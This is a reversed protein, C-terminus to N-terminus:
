QPRITPFRNGEKNHTIEEILRNPDIDQLSSVAFDAEHLKDLPYTTAVGLVRMGAARASRIGALSDEIVLCEAPAIPDAAGQAANLRELTTRYIAPDPKGIPCDEASIIPEFDGSIPTHALAADIQERRGGSAVALRYRSKAAKVFDSVGPFFEPGHQATYARFLEAKRQTIRMLTIDCCTGERAILLLRTCLREDMGLYDGYYQDKTLSLGEEALAKQFCLIHPTEDDAIVGNFDFIIAKIM